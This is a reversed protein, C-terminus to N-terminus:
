LCYLFGGMEEALDQAKSFSLKLDALLKFFSYMIKSFYRTEFRHWSPPSNAEGLLKQEEVCMFKMQGDEIKTPILLSFVDKKQEQNQKIHLYKFFLLRNIPIHDLCVPECKQEPIFNCLSPQPQPALRSPVEIRTNPCFVSFM